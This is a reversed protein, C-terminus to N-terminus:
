KGSPPVIQIVTRFRKEMVGDVHLYGESGNWTYDKVVVSPPYAMTDESYKGLDFQQMAPTKFLERGGNKLVNKYYNLIDPYPTNTGFMYYHQGRGADIAGLYDASPYALARVDAPADNRASAPTNSPRSPSNPQGTPPPQTGPQTPQVSGPFLPKTPTTQQTGQPGAHLVGGLAVFAAVIGIQRIARM